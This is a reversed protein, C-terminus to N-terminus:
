SMDRAALERALTEIHQRNELKALWAQPLAESGLLAGAVAGAMTGLTDRDGGNLVACL